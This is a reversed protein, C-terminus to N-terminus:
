QNGALASSTTAASISISAPKRFTTVVTAEASRGAEIIPHGTGPAIERGPITARGAAARNGDANRRGRERRSSRASRNSNSALRSFGSNNNNSSPSSLLRRLSNGNSLSGLSRRPNNGKSHSSLLMRLSNSNRRSSHRSSINSRRSGSPRGLM